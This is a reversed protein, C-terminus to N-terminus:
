ECDPLHWLSFGHLLFELPLRIPGVTFGSQAAQTPSLSDTVFGYGTVPRFDAVALLRPRLVRGLLWDVVEVVFRWYFLGGIVLGASNGRKDLEVVLGDNLLASFFKLFVVICCFSFLLSSSRGLKVDLGVWGLVNM